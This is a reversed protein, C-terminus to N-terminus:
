DDDEGLDDEFRSLDDAPTKQPTGWQKINRAIHYGATVACMCAFAYFCVWLLRRM